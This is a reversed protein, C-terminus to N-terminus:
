YVDYLNYFDHSLYFFASFEMGDNFNGMVVALTPHLYPGYRQSYIQLAEAAANMAAKGSGQYLNFYYSTVTVNGVQTSSTLFGTSASIAFTRGSILTYKTWEGNQSPVGSSAIVPNVAPDAPKPNAM